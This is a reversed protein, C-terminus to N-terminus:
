KEIEDWLAARFRRVSWALAAGVALWYLVTLMTPLAALFKLWAAGGGTM